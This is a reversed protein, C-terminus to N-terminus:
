GAIGNKLAPHMTPNPITKNNQLTILSEQVMSMWQLRGNYTVVRVPGFIKKLLEPAGGGVVIRTPLQVHVPSLKVERWEQVPDLLVVGNVAPRHQLLLTASVGEAIIYLAGHHKHYRLAELLQEIDSFHKQLSWNGESLGHGRLELLFVNFGAAQLSEALREYREILKGHDPIILVGARLPGDFRRVVLVTDDPM